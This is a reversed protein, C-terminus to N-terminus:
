RPSILRLPNVSLPESLTMSYYVLENANYIYDDILLKVNPVGQFMFNSESVNDLISAHLKSLKSTKHLM